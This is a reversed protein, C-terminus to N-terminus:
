DNVEEYRVLHQLKKVMGLIEPRAEHIVSHNMKRLGLAELILKQSKTAGIKSKYQTVRIKM